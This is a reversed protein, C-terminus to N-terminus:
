LQLHILCNSFFLTHALLSIITIIKLKLKWLSQADFTILFSQCACSAALNARLEMFLIELIFSSWSIFFHMALANAFGFPRCEWRTRRGQFIKILSTM